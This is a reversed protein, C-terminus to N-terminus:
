VTVESPLPPAVSKFKTRAGDRAPALEARHIWSPLPTAAVLTPVVNLSPVGTTTVPGVVVGVGM